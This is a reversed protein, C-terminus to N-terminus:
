RCVGAESSIFRSDFNASASSKGLDALNDNVFRDQDHSLVGGMLTFDLFLNGWQRRASVGAFAGDAKGDHSKAFRSSAESEDHIYGAMVSLGLGPQHQWRYGFAVGAQSIDRDLTAADGQHSTRGGFPTVWFNKGQASAPGGKSDKMGYTSGYPSDFRGALGQRTVNSLLSTMDGLSDVATALSTSDLTVFQNTSANFFSAAPGTVNPAGGAMPGEFTWVMSHSVSTTINVTTPDTSGLMIRGGLFAPAQLNLFNPANGNSSIDFARDPSVVLGSVTIMNGGGDVFIGISNSSSTLISGSSTITNGNGSIEIGNGGSFMRGFNDVVNRDGVMQVTKDGGGVSGFNQFTNDNGFIVFGRAGAEIRGLNKIINSNSSSFLEDARFLIGDRRATIVGHNSIVTNSGGEEVVLGDVGQGGVDM